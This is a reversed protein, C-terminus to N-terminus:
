PLVELLDLEVEAVRRGIAALEVSREGGVLHRSAQVLCIVGWKLASFAEWWALAREDVRTGSVEEYADLLEARQGIGGVPPRAGFRWAKACLWGLDEVPDGLHVLEWDLVARLGHEDVLLNGLRFDGHVVTPRDPAPPRDRELVRFAWEFTPVAAGLDDLVSRYHAVQDPLELAPVPESRAVAGLAHGCDAAFSRRAAALAPDRLVRAPRAEGEVHEMVLFAAGFPERADSACVVAPVPVGARAAAAIAAAETTMPVRTAVPPALRLVYRGRGPLSFAWLQSSAGGSLLDVDHPPGVPEGFAEGLVAPLRDALVRATGTSM